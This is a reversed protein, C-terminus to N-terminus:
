SKASAQRERLPPVNATAQSSVEGAPHM